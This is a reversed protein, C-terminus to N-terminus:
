SCKWAQQIRREQAIGERRQRLPADEGNRKRHVSLRLLNGLPSPLPFCEVTSKQACGQRKFVPSALNSTGLRGDQRSGNGFRLLLGFAEVLLLFVCASSGLGKIWEM